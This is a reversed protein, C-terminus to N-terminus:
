LEPWSLEFEGGELQERALLVILSPYVRQEIDRRLNRLGIAM